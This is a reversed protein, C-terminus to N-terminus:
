RNEHSASSWGELELLRRKIATGASFGGISGDSRIVRHCPILIPLRNRAMAGGVARAAGPSGARKALERYGIPQGYPVKRLAVYVKREFPTAWPFSSTFTFDVREGRFYRRLEGLLNRFPSGDNRIEQCYRAALSREVGRKGSLDLLLEFLENGDGALACLGIPSDFLTYYVIM